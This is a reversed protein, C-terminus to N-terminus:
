AEIYLIEGTLANNEALELVAATIRELAVTQQQPDHSDNHETPLAYGPAVGNVRIFPALEKAAMQTFAALTKKALLYACHTSRPTRISADLMNVVSGKGIQEAFAQTLFFAQAFNATFDANLSEPTTDTFAIRRFTSANNVLVSLHPLQAQAQQVLQPLADLRTLDQQLLVCQRGLAQIEAQTAEAEAQSRHYHLAIDYGARAFELAIAKGIRKAAGTILVAKSM